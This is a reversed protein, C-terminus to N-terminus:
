LGHHFSPPRLRKARRRESSTAGLEAPALSGTCLPHYTHTCNHSTHSRTLGAPVIQIILSTPQSTPARHSLKDLFARGCLRNSMKIPPSIPGRTASARPSEFGAGACWSSGARLVWVILHGLSLVSATRLPPPPPPSGLDSVVRSLFNTVFDAPRSGLAAVSALPHRWDRVSQRRVHNIPNPHMCAKAQGKRFASAKSDTAADGPGDRMM